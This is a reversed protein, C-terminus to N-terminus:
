AAAPAMNEAYNPVKGQEVQRAFVDRMLGVSFLHAVILPLMGNQAMKHLQDAGLDRFKQEDVMRFGRYVFPQRAGPPEIAIEGDILLGLELLDTGFQQTRNAAIEFDECFKLINSLVETPKGDEFLADGDDSPGVLGSEADFCLTLEESAPNIRALAYPFRRIYAPVYFPAHPKGEDDVFVNVGENLGMLALPVPVDGTAFVIPLSRQAASFEEVTLPVANIKALHPAVDLSHHKFNAHLTSSLPELRSYLVPMSPPPQTAM